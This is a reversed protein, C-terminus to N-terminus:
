AKRMTLEGLAHLRVLMEQGAPTLFIDMTQYQPHRKEVFLKGRFESYARYMGGIKYLYKLALLSRKLTNCNVGDLTRGFKTLAVTDTQAYHADVLAAKPAMVTLSATAEALRAELLAAKHAMLGYIQEQLKEIDSLTANPDSLKEEGVIYSGTKRVTPLVSRTVWDQFPVADPKNSRLLLKYLGSESVCRVSQPGGPTTIMVSGKEDDRLRALTVGTIAVGVAATVDAAVFWPEGDITVVRINHDVGSIPSFTRTTIQNSSM